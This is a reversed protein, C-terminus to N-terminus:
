KMNGISRTSQCAGREKYQFKKEKQSKTLFIKQAKVETNGGEEIGIVQLNPRKM